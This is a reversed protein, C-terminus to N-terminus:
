IHSASFRASSFQHPQKSDKSNYDDYNEDAEKHGDSNLHAMQGFLESVGSTFQVVKMFLTVTQDVPHFGSWKGFFSPETGVQFCNMIKVYRLRM